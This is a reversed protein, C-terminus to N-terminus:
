PTAASRVSLSGSGRVARIARALERIGAEITAETCRGYGLMLTPPGNWDSLRQGSMIELAVGRRGAEALIAREDDGTPLVVTAHLGAAIGYVKAEPLEAALAAVLAARRRGYRVRTRRLHRDLDGREIFAALAQQEIRSSGSDAVRKELQLAPLMSRPAVLWGLRLAPALMKSATGAYVVHEPDLGQLARIPARDYRFEADYDDEIAFANRSRLWAVLATRREGSLVVGTPYQHAPTLLVADPAAAELLDVRIGEDDVPIPVIELGAGKVADWESYGPDEVALRRAGMAYLVRSALGRGQSFGSTILVQEPEAVVGRVRGLYEVLAHCLRETGYTDRYGFDDDYMGALADRYARQWEARPFSSLDPIAPLFNYLPPREAVVTRGNRVARHEVVALVRPAAGQKLKLFGEAALQSYADIVVPRSIGLQFALERTSPLLAGAALTGARIASRLQDEIQVSLNRPDERKVELLLEIPRSTLFFAESSTITPHDTHRYIRALDLM